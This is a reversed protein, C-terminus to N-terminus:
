YIRRNVYMRVMVSVMVGVMVAPLPASPLTPIPTCLHLHINLHIHLSISIFAIERNIYSLMKSPFASEARDGHYPEDQHHLIGDFSIIM